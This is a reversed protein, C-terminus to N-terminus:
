KADLERVIHVRIDQPQIIGDLSGVQVARKVSHIEDFERAVEGRKELTVESRVDELRERLSPKISSPATEIEEKIKQVRKDQEVRKRVEQPFVVAAAPAGGIVSAFSGSVAFARINPNLAKSFVVYAGGHYRGIVIFLFPGEFNVVARGIEAGYELQLKRLSEPSGDFGSLNALVVVPRNGSASNIARAVKKSSTPFLTGGTWNEPGDMPIRGQRKQQRSEVGILCVPWGGISSEWVVATEGDKQPSFRELSEIDQDVVAQMVARIAFPKKREANRKSDFIEAITNIQEDKDSIYPYDMISRTSLDSTKLKRQKLEDANRYTNRYWDFLIRYADGLNEAIFQAQGNPGMIREVGGIGREDEASIGGSYDLAKKGTLVMSGDLTMILAGKTHMLMTAEANWYSQAGVNIGSVIINCFGGDQTFQVIKRLVKATWDLNETGSDMSIKAGASIPLWEIPYGMSEALEFAGIIRRCEPEALSGMSRTADSAIWVRHMGQPYKPTENSIIGCVVGCTNEGFPRHVAVFANNEDLDYETFSGKGMDPHISITDQGSDSVLLQIAEYPYLCKLNKSRVVRMDYASMESIKEPIPSYVREINMRYKGPKRILIEVHQPPAYGAGKIRGRLNVERVSLGRLHPELRRSLQEIESDHVTMIPHIYFQMWNWRFRTRFSQESQIERLIRVAEFFVQEYEWIPAGSQSSSEGFVEAFIFIRQDKPHHHAIGKFAYIRDHARLRELQFNQLRWLELRLAVEPHIDRLLIDEIFGEKQRSYSRHSEGKKPDMWNLTCRKITNIEQTQLYSAIQKEQEKSLTDLIFIELVDLKPLSSQLIPLVDNASLLIAVMDQERLSSTKRIDCRIVSYGELSLDEKWQCSSASYLRRVLLELIRHKSSTTEHAKEFLTRQLAHPDRVLSNVVTRTQPNDASLNEIELFSARLREDLALQRLAYTERHFLTYQAQLANDILFPYERKATQVVKDLTDKLTITAVNELGAEHLQIMMRLLSSAIRHQYEAHQQAMFIRWLAKRTSDTPENESVGYWHLAKQIFPLYDPLLVQAGERFRRCYEFYCIDAPVQTSGEASIFLNRDLVLSCDAFIALLEILSEWRKPHQVRSFDTQNDLLSDIIHKQEPIVDYGLLISQLVQFLDSIITQAETEKLSDLNEPKGQGQEILVNFSMQYEKSKTRISPSESSYEESSEDEEELIFLPEAIRVQQNPRCLIQKIRGSEPAFVGMEMKMAELTCIRTGAQVIDGEQVAISVVMAPSPARVIGGSSREISHNHGNVEVSIGSAGYSYLIKFTRNNINLQAIGPSLIQFSVSFREHAIGVLWTEEACAYVSIKYSNDRLRVDIHMGQPPLSAQPIGDQVNSFFTDIQNQTQLKYELIGAAILAEMAREPGGISGEQVAVDLWSTTASGNIFSPNKLLASLFAQNTCGDQVVVDLEACARQARVIAQARTPAWIILKAIMSDFHPSIEMGEQVGSDIRMGPGAPFNLIKLLGPSPQFSKEPNEANLRLEIAHGRYQVVPPTLSEGNAIKLQAKVLDYDTIAETITHEVQLRSNVELFSCTGTHPQYLYEVTGVGSYEAKKALEVSVSCLMTEIEIPLIPSPAEEIVKQNRRQISCDRVGLAFVNGKTDAVIQVEIHRASTICAEMFIGGQGFIRDVEERVVGVAMLVDDATHVRRIGRGGGGASAKIMLPFGIRTAQSLIEEEDIDETIEFWPAMPVLCSTAIYKSAIKDGLRKMALSTPGIFCIQERECKEVFTHDESVFGWGPWVADCHYKKLISIIFEHDCYASVLKGDANTRMAEGIHIALNSKRVFPAHEDESTYLAVSEICTNHELNYEYLGRLFRVAPEGRNIIAIRKM